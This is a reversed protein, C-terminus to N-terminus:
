CIIGSVLRMFVSILLVIEKNEMVHEVVYIKVKADEVEGIKKIDEQITQESKISKCM